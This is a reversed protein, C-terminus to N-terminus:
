EKTENNTEAKTPHATIAARAQEIADADCEEGMGEWGLDAETMDEDDKFEGNEDMGLNRFGEVGLDAFCAWEYSDTVKKLAGELEAIRKHLPATAQDRHRALMNSIAPVLEDDMLLSSATVIERAVELDGPLPSAEVPRLRVTELLTKAEELEQEILGFEKRVYPTTGTENYTRSIELANFVLRCVDALWDNDAIRGTSTMADPPRSM